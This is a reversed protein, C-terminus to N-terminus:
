APRRSPACVGGACAGPEPRRRAARRASASSPRSRTASTTATSRCRSRAARRGLPVDGARCAPSRPRGAPPAAIRPASALARACAVRRCTSRAARADLVAGASTAPTSRPARPSRRDAPAQLVHLAAREPRVRQRREVARRGVTSRSGRRTSSTAARPVDRDRGCRSTGPASAAGEPAPPPRRARGRERRPRRRRLVHVLPRQGRGLDVRARSGTTPWGRAPARHRRRRRQPHRADPLLRQHRRRAPLDAADGLRRPRQRRTSRATAASRSSSTTARTRPRAACSPPTAAAGPHRGGRGRLPGAARLRRPAQAPRVDDDRVPQRDGAHAQDAGAGSSHARASSRPPARALAAHPRTVLALRPPPLLRAHRGAPGVM